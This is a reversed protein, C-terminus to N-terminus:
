ADENSMPTASSGGVGTPWDSWRFLMPSQCAADAFENPRQVLSPGAGGAGPIEKEPRAGVSGGSGTSKSDWIKAVSRSPVVPAVMGGVNVHDDSVGAMALTSLRPTM